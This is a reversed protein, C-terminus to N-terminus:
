CQANPVLFQSKAARHRCGWAHPACLMLGHLASHEHVSITFSCLTTWASSHREEQACVFRTLVSHSCKHTCPRGCVHMTWKRTSLSCPRKVLVGLSHEGAGPGGNNRGAPWAQRRIGIQSRARGGTSMSPFRLALHIHREHHMYTYMLPHVPLHFSCHIFHVFDGMSFTACHQSAPALVAAACLLM